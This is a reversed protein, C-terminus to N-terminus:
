SLTSSVWTTGNYMYLKSSGADFFPPYSTISNHYSYIITQSSAYMTMYEGTASLCITMSQTAALTMSTPSFTSGYDSSVNMYTSDYNIYCQYKGDATMALKVSNGIGNSPSSWTTGFDSSVFISPTSMTSIATVYKGSASIKITCFGPSYAIPNGSGSILTWSAGFDTSKYVAGPGNRDGSVAFQLDGAASMVVENYNDTTSGSVVAWTVGYNTSRWIKGGYVVATVYQGTSSMAINSFAISINQSSWTVGYNSSTYMNNNQTSAVMYKGSSSMAVSKWHDSTNTSYWSAGYNSSTYLYTGAYYPWNGECAVLRYQGSSSIAMSNINQLGFTSYNSSADGGFGTIVNYTLQEVGSSGQLGAAGAAGQAGASGAEGQAGVTGTAGQAGVTGTAGAAGTFGQAGAAGASGAAGTAGAAGASGTPGVSGTAGQAGIPGTMGQPGPTSVWSAGDYVRLESFELDFYASGTVTDAPYSVPMCFNDSVVNTCNVDSASIGTTFNVVGNTSLSIKSMYIQQVYFHPGM